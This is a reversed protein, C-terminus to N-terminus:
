EFWTQWVTCFNGVIYHFLSFVSRPVKPGEMSSPDHILQPGSLRITILLIIFNFCGCVYVCYQQLSIHLLYRFHVNHDLGMKFALGKNSLYNGWIKLNRRSNVPNLENKTSWSLTSKRFQGYKMILLEINWRWIFCM